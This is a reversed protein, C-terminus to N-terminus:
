GGSKFWAVLKYEKETRYGLKRAVAASARNQKACNWYTQYGLAECAQILHACTLTAYGQGWYPEHTMVGIEILGLAPPGSFTECLLTDGSMLFFGLGKELAKEASGFTTITLDRDTMLELLHHDVRRLQCGPPIQSLYPELGQGLPRDVFELVAGEYGPNPPLQQLRDDDPWLGLMVDGERRLKDVLRALLPAELAGGPYLTGFATEWVLGWTPNAPDDTLIQGAAAGELVAFCRLAAPLGPDFLSRLRPSVQVSSLQFM